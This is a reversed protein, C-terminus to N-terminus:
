VEELRQEMVIKEIVMPDDLIQGAGIMTVADPKYRFSDLDLKVKFFKELGNIKSSAGCLYIGHKKIDNAIENECNAMIQLIASSIAAYEEVVLGFIESSTITVSAYETTDKIFGDINITRNDNPLLTAIENKVKEASEKSLEIGKEQYIYNAIKKDINDGGHYVTAGHLIRGNSIVAIETNVGIDVLLFSKAFREIEFGYATAIISPIVDVRNIGLGYALNKYENTYKMDEMPVLFLVGDKKSLEVAQLYKELMLEALSFDMQGDSVIKRYDLGSDIAEQGVKVAVERKGKIATLVTSKDCLVVGVGAKYITTNNSGLNIAFNINKM